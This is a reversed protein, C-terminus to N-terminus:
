HLNVLSVFGKKRDKEYQSKYKYYLLVGHYLVFYRKRFRDLTSMPKTIDKCVHGEKIPSQGSCTELYKTLDEQTRIKVQMTDTKAGMPEELEGGSSQSRTHSTKEGWALPMLQDGSRCSGEGELSGASATNM